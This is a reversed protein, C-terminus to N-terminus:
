SILKPPGALGRSLAGIIREIIESDGKFNFKELFQDLSGLNTVSEYFLGLSFSSSISKIQEPILVVISSNEAFDLEQLRFLERADEGREKGSLFPANRGETVRNLDIIVVEEKMDNM